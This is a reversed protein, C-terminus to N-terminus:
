LMCRSYPGGALPQATLSENRKASRAAECIEGILFDVASPRYGSRFDRTGGGAADGTPQTHPPRFVFADRVALLAARKQSAEDATVLDLKALVSAMGRRATVDSVIYALSCWDLWRTYPLTHSPKGALVLVPLCGGFAGMAVFETIKPTSVFDGPAALCFKHGMAHGFYQPAPLNVTAKAM